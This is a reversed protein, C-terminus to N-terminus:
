SWIMHYQPVYSIGWLIYSCVFQSLNILIVLVIYVYLDWSETHYNHQYILYMCVYLLTYGTNHYFKLNRQTFIRSVVPKLVRYIGVYMSPHIALM